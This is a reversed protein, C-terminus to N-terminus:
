RVSDTRTMEIVEGLEEDEEVSDDGLGPWLQDTQSANDNGDVPAEHSPELNSYRRRRHVRYQLTGIFFAVGVVSLGAGVAFIGFHTAKQADQEQQADSQESPIAEVGIAQAAGSVPQLQSEQDDDASVDIDAHEQIDVPEAAAEFPKVEDAAKHELGSVEAPPSSPDAAAPIPTEIPADVVLTPEAPPQELTKSSPDTASPSDSIWPFSELNDSGDRLGKSDNDDYEEEAQSQDQSENISPNARLEEIIDDDIEDAPYMEKYKSVTRDNEYTWEEPSVDNDDDDEPNEDQEDAASHDLYSERDSKPITDLRADDADNIVPICHGVRSLLLLVTLFLLLKM